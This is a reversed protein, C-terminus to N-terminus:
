WRDIYTQKGKRLIIFACRITFLYTLSFVSDGCKYVNLSYTGDHEYEEDECFLYVQSDQSSLKYM